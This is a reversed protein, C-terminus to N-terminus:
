VANEAHHKCPLLDVTSDTFGMGMNSECSASMKLTKVSSLHLSTSSTIPTEPQKKTAIRLTCLVFRKVADNKYIFIVANLCSNLYVLLYTLYIGMSLGSSLLKRQFEVRYFGFMGVIVYPVYCIFVAGLILLITMIMAVAYSPANSSKRLQKTKKLHQKVKSYAELYAAYIIVIAAMDALLIVMNVWQFIGYITSLTYSLGMGISAVYSIVMLGVARQKTIISDYRQLYKMHIYRDIGIAVITFGSIHGFLFTFFQASMELNCFKEKSYTTFLAGVLSQVIAAVCCDSISLCLFFKNIISGLQRTEYLGVIIFCNATLTIPIMMFNLIAIITSQYNELVLRGAFANDCALSTM